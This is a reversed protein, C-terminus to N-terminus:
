YYSRYKPKGDWLYANESGSIRLWVTKGGDRTLIKRVLPLHLTREPDAVVRDGGEVAACGIEQIKAMTGKVEEVRYFMVNTQDYGWSSYFIQGVEVPNVVLKMHSRRLTKQAQHNLLQQKISIVAAEREASTAYCYHHTPKRQAKGVYVCLIFPARSTIEYRIIETGGDVSEVSSNEKETFYNRKM